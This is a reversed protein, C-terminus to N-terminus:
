MGYARLQREKRVLAVINILALTGFVATGRNAIINFHRFATIAVVNGAVSAVMRVIRTFRPADRLIPFNSLNLMIHSYITKIVVAKAVLAPNLEYIKAYALSLSANVAVNITAHKLPGLM